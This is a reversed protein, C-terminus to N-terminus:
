VAENRSTLLRDNGKRGGVNKQEGKDTNEMSSEFEQILVETYLGLLLFVREFVSTLLVSQKWTQLIAM